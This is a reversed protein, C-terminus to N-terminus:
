DAVRGGTLQWVHTAFTVGDRRHRRLERQGLRELRRGAVEVTGSSPRELGALVRLLTSKGSGSPGVVATVAGAAFAADVGRLAEVEGVTSRYSKVLGECVAVDAM